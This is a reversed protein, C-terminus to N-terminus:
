LQSDCIASSWCNAQATCITVRTLILGLSGLHQSCLLSAEALMATAFRLEHRSSDSRLWLCRTTSHALRIAAHSALWTSSRASHVRPSPRDERSRPAFLRAAHVEFESPSNGFDPARMRMETV